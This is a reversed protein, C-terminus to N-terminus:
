TVGVKAPEGLNIADPPLDRYPALLRGVDVPQPPGPRHLWGELERLLAGAEPHQRLADIARGPEVADLNLRRRWYVLLARELDALEARSLTGAVAGEVLPRLRDALTVAAGAAAVARKRRPYLFSAVIAALGVVWITGLIRRLTLYGGVRPGSEIELANPLVQGPPLVAAVTVPIPPLDAASSGDKRRLYQRLDHTGPELGAYEIDYRFASGHPYTRVIRVVVPSKRDDLRGAVLESGPLVLGEITGPM